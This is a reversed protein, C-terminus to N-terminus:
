NFWSVQMATEFSGAAIHDPALISNKVWALGPANGPNPPVYAAPAQPGTEKVPSIISNLDLDDDVDWGEGEGMNLEAPPASAKKPVIQGSDDLDEDGWDGANGLDQEDLEPAAASVASVPESVAQEFVNKSLSLQPWNLASQKLIAPPGRLLVRSPLVSPAEQVGAEKLIEDAVGHLGHTQASLWALSLQGSERLTQVQDAIDGAYLANQFRSTPDNRAEAIRVMKKLKDSNGTVLYLFSLKDFNKTKQYVFEVVNHNGQRLAEMGLKNWYQEMDIAKAMELAADINGSEIALDFRTKPDKVFQLAIEPYGKKQLYAIISQGM